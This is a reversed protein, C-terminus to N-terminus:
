NWSLHLLNKDLERGVRALWESKRFPEVISAAAGFGLGTTGSGRHAAM